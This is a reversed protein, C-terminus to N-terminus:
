RLMQRVRLNYDLRGQIPLSITKDATFLANGVLNLSAIQKLLLSLFLVGPTM